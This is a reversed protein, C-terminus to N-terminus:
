ARLRRRCPAPESGISSPTSSISVLAPWSRRASGDVSFIRLLETAMRQQDRIALAIEKLDLGWEGANANQGAAAAGTSISAGRSM